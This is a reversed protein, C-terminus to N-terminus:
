GFRNMVIRNKHILGADDSEDTSASENASEREKRFSYQWTKKKM